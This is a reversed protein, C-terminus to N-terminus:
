TLIFTNLALVSRCMDAFSRHEMMIASCLEKLGAAHKPKMGSAAVFDKWMAEGQPNRTLRPHRVGRWGEHPPDRPPMPEQLWHTGSPLLGEM